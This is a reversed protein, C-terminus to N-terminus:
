ATKQLMHSSIFSMSSRIAEEPRALAHVTSAFCEFSYAGTYGADSLAKIQGLNDLRDREDVLGRHHDEMRSVPLMPESVGSIHVIGTEGPYFQGGDALAHHFTDHVLKIRDGAGLEYIAMVLESKERLSSREFGLPEVLAVMNAADLMPICVELARTMDSIRAEPNLGSGDNCPILSITEAGAALATNILAQTEAAIAESWRNFPYVQSLGLLRLGRARIMDGAAAANMGDFIPRGLDNRAEVGVCGLRAATEVFVDFPANSMTIQNLGFDPM